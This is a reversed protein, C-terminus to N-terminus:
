DKKRELGALRRATILLLAALTAVVALGGLLVVLLLKRSAPDVQLPGVSALAPATALPREVQQGVHQGGYREPM